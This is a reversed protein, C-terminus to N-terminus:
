FDGCSPSCVGAAAFHMPAKMWRVVRMRMEGWAKMRACIGQADGGSFRERRGRGGFAAEM